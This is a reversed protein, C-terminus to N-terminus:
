RVKEPETHETGNTVFKKHKTKENKKMRGQNKM